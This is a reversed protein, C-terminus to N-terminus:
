NKELLCGPKRLCDQMIFEDQKPMVCTVPIGKEDCIKAIKRREEDDKMKAGLYVKSIPMFSCNYDSKDALMKDLSLLRWENQYRWDLSKALLGYKYIPWLVEDSVIPSELDQVFQELVSNRENTYIVPFLGSLLNSYKEELAPFEYEVCFGQHSNAYHAWMLMSYPTTTFCAVRFREVLTNRTSVFEAHIAEYFAKQWSDNSGNNTYLTNLLKLVFSDHTLDVYNNKDGLIGFLVELGQISSSHPYLFMAFEYMLRNIDWEPDIIFNCLSAYHMIRRKAFQEEDLYVKSDYPDDFKTPTQLYVTNNELAEFSYNRHTNVDITNPYYKYLKQPHNLIVMRSFDDRSLSQVMEKSYQNGNIYYLAM